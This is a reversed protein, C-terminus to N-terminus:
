KTAISIELEAVRESLIQVKREMEKCRRRYNQPAHAVKELAQLRRELTIKNM